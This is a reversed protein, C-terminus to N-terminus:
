GSALRLNAAVRCIKGLVTAGFMLLMPDMPKFGHDAIAMEQDDEPM